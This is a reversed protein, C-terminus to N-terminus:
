ESRVKTITNPDGHQSCSAMCSCLGTEEHTALVVEEPAAHLTILDNDARPCRELSGFPVFRSDISLEIGAARLVQGVLLDEAGTPYPELREAVIVAAKRSLFYGAGGSAYGVGPRWEAGIYDRGAPDFALLRPMSIYTDDDCKFLYDWPPPCPAPLVSCLTDANSGAGQETSWAGLAWRCFWLTRQPLSAYDDPCPLALAHPGIQEPVVAAPCGLLFVSQVGLVDADRMWTALCRRRREPYKWASLAGILIRSMIKSHSPKGVSKLVTVFKM